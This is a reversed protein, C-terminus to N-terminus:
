DPREVRVGLPTLAPRLRRLAESSSLKESLLTLSGNEFDCIGCFLYNSYANQYVDLGRSSLENELTADDGEALRGGARIGFREAEFRMLLKLLDEVPLADIVMCRKAASRWAIGRENGHARVRDLHGIFDLSWGVDGALAPIATAWVASALGGIAPDEAGPEKLDLSIARVGLGLDLPEIILHFAAPDM